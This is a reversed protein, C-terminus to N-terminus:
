AMAVNLIYGMREDETKLMRFNAEYMRTVQILDVLEEVINVNAAETFGQKVHVGIAEAPEVSTAARFSSDGVPIVDSTSAFDVVRLKGISRGGANVAGDEAVHFDNIAVSEPLVIPGSTGAVVRGAHDVLQRDSNFRFQGNRTYLRGEPTEIVFFGKGNLALDLRRGSHVLHGQSLDLLSQVEIAGGLDSDQSDTQVLRLENLRRKFGVTSANALNHTIGQYTQSLADLSSTTITSDM